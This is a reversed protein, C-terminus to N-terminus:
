ELLSVSDEGSLIENGWKWRYVDYDENNEESCHMREENFMQIQEIKVVM